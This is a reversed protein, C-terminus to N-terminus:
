LLMVFDAPKYNINKLIKTTSKNYVIWKDPLEAKRYDPTDYNSKGEEYLKIYNYVTLKAEGESSCLKSMNSEHVIDFASNININLIVATKYIVYILSKLYGKMYVYKNDEIVNKIETRFYNIFQMQYNVIHPYKFCNGGNYKKINKIDDCLGKTHADVDFDEHPIPLIMDLRTYPNKLALDSLEFWDLFKRSDMNLALMMGYAVYLIDAMADIFEVYDKNKVAENLENVEEDVLSFRYKVLEMEEFVNEPIGKYLKVEFAKNFEVIDAIHKKAEIRM